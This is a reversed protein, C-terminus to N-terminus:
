ETGDDEEQTLTIYKVRPDKARKMKEVDSLRYWRVQSRLAQFGRVACLIPWWVPILIFALWTAGGEIIEQTANKLESFTRNWRTLKVRDWWWAGMRVRYKNM